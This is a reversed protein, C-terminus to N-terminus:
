AARHGLHLPQRPAAVTGLGFHTDHYLNAGTSVVWDVFGAEVLPILASIGLGAPTLAGTLSVGITVDEELMKETFLRCADRLRGANYSLFTGDILERVTIDPTIPRPDIRAGSLFHSKSDM